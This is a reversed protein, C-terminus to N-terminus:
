RSNAPHLTPGEPDEGGAHRGHRDSGRRDANERNHRAVKEKLLLRLKNMEDRLREFTERQATVREYLVKLAEQKEYLDGTLGLDDYLQDTKTGALELASVYEEATSIQQPM